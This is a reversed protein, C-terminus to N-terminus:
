NDFSPEENIGMKELLQATESDCDECGFVGDGQLEHPTSGIDFSKVADGKKGVSGSMLDEKQFM